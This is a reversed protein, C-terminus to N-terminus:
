RFSASFPGWLPLTKDLSVHAWKGHTQGMRCVHWLSSYPHRIHLSFSPWLSFIDNLFGVILTLFVQSCEKQVLSLPPAECRPIYVLASCPLTGGPAISPTPEQRQSNIIFDIESKPGSSRFHPCTMGNRWETHLLTAAPTHFQFWWAIKHIFCM